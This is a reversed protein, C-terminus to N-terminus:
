DSSPEPQEDQCKLVAEIAKKTGTLNIEIMRDNEGFVKVARRKAFESVFNPNDFYAYGGPLDNHIQGVVEGAFRADGFDFNVVGTAGNEINTWEANYAAFYGGESSPVVGIQVLTGDEFSKEALCGNGTSRDVLINWGGAEGWPEVGQAHAGAGALFALTAFFM